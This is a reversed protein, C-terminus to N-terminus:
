TNIAVYLNLYGAFAVWLLYPILLWVSAKNVRAFLVMTWIILVLLLILWIFSLWFWEFNFFFIPWFFNVVLQLAYVELARRRGVSDASSFVLYSAIGMLIFLISWVIPFVVPPPSLPAQPMAMYKQDFGMTILASLGGVALPILIAVILHWIKKKNM